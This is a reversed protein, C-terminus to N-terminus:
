RRKMIEVVDEADSKTATERLELRARAQLSDWWQSKRVGFNGASISGTMGWNTKNFVGATTHHCAYFWSPAGSSEAAPLVKSYGSSSRWVAISPCVSSRLQHIKKVPMTSHPRHKWGSTGKFVHIWMQLLIGSLHLHMGKPPDDLKVQLRESLPMDSQDLLISTELESNTRTVTASTARARGARNAMVHESLHRDHSEDPIDLLIFIVDFRSLVPSGM